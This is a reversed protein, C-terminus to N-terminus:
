YKEPEVISVLSPQTRYTTKPISHIGSVKTPIKVMKPNISRARNKTCISNHINTGNTTPQIM